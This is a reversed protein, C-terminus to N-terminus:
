GSPIPWCGIRLRSWGATRRRETHQNLRLLALQTEPIALQAYAADDFVLILEAYATNRVHGILSNIGYALSIKEGGVNLRKVDKMTPHGLQLAQGAEADPLSTIPESSWVDDKNDAKRLIGNQVVSDATMRSLILIREEEEDERTAM